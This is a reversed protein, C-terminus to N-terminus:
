KSMRYAGKDGALEITNTLGELKGVVDARILPTPNEKSASLLSIRLDKAAQGARGNGREVPELASLVQNREHDKLRPSGENSVATLVRRLHDFVAERKRRQWRVLARLAGFLAVGVAVVIAVVLAASLELGAITFASSGLAGIVATV